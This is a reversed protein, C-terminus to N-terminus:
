STRRRRTVREPPPGGDDNIMSETVAHAESADSPRPKSTGPSTTRSGSGPKPASAPDPGIGMVRMLPRFVAPGESPENLFAHGATPFEKVSNEIGLNDLATELKAAAGKLTRDKGGFNAM